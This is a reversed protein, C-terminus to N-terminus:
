FAVAAVPAGGHGFGTDVGVEEDEAIPRGVRHQRPVDDVAAHLVREEAVLEVLPEALLPRQRRLPLLFVGAEERYQLLFEWSGVGVSDGLPEQAYTRRPSPPRKRSSPM